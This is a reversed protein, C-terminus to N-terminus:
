TEGGRANAWARAAEIRAENRVEGRALVIRVTEFLIRLNLAFSRNEIYWLDLDLKEDDTLKTNGSVQSWGTLGPRVACRLRGRAGMEDITEPKLPRPGILSMQGRLISLTQPLEDLRTRRIFRSLETIRAEDPLLEGTESRADTMTRFKSIRFPVANLGARTQHFLIPYGLSKMVLIATVLFPVILFPVSLAVFVFEVFRRM